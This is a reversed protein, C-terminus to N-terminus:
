MLPKVMRKMWAPMRMVDRELAERDPEKTLLFAIQQLHEEEVNKEKMAKLAQVLMAILKTEFSFYRPVANKLIITANKMRITRKSGSTLYCYVMPVQTSLGLANLATVGCPMVEAHDRNAIAQVIKSISPSVPGFRSMAPKVYIGQAVKLLTGNKTLEALVEGVFEAHYEPYDSRFIVSYDPLQLIKQKLTQQETETTKSM